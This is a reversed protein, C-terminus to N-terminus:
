PLCLVGLTTERSAGTVSPLNGPEGSILENALVAFAIAEKADGPIGIDDSLIVEAPQLQKRLEEFIMPNRAGGGSVIWEDVKVRPQIWQEYSFVISDSTFQTVTALLDYPTLQLERQRDKLKKLFDAGFYSRGTSKPPKRQIYPDNLLSKLVDRSVKGQRALEADRDFDQHFYERTVADILMNGPGTDFAFVEEKKADKPLVTVNAIGGINLVARNKSPSRLLLFDVYPVLPAGEGGLAMDAARFNGVVPIGTRKALVSPEGIQLTSTVSQGAIDVPRPQHYITQGHSGILDIGNPPIANKKLFDLVYESWLAALFFNLQSVCATSGRSPAACNLILEKIKKSYSITQFAKLSVTTQLGQGSVQVHAIDLGDLSTGSMLGIIEKTNKEFRRYLNM